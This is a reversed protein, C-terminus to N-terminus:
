YLFKLNEVNTQVSPECMTVHYRLYLNFHFLKTPYYFHFNLLYIVMNFFITDPLLLKTESHLSVKLTPFELLNWSNQKLDSFWQIVFFKFIHFIRPFIICECVCVCVCVMHQIHTHTFIIFTKAIQAKKNKNIM